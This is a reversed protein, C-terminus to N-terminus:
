ERIVGDWFEWFRREEEYPADEVHTDRGFLMTARHTPDYAPWDDAGAVAPRGSHAFHIWADQMDQALREAARGDGAFRTIMPHGHTGFVFPIELAHCSGLVGEMFPSPWTFLYAYTHPQHAQQLEALRMAPYRFARDSDIAFWLEAPEVSQGRKARTRRYTVVARRGHTTGTADEGPIVRECRRVLADADLSRVQPDMLGFLKMEDLNTGVLVDVDTSLGGAITTFPHEPLVVGDVVPAFPLGRLKGQMTLYARQQAALIEAAPVDRLRAAGRRDLGLETCISEAARRAHSRSCVFNAAGSQLIARHFLGRARPTGLLTAVSISGASEGFLTVNAPDGGFTAIEDRVWELAGIQDLLGENGTAPIAGDTLEDLQLFGLSGLRYNITVVVVDGRRALTQGDYLVQRGGGMVFAGGHIWVLVPRRGGDPAPTWVNLTLCDESTDGLDLGLVPGLLSPNQPAASGFRAAARVGAWPEHRQPPAFRRAGVPPQAFPIGRFVRVGHEEVGQLKGYSTEVIPGV